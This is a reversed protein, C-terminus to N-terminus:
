RIGGAQQSRLWLTWQERTNAGLKVQAGAETLKLLANHAAARVGQPEALDTLEVLRPLAERVSLGGMATALAQKVPEARATDALMELLTPLARREVKEALVEIALTQTTPSASDLMKIVTPYDRVPSYLTMIRHKLLTQAAPDASRHQRVLKAVDSDGLGPFHERYILYAVAALLALVVANRFNLVM